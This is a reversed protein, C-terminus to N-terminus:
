GLCGQDDVRGDDWKKVSLGPDGTSKFLQIVSKLQLQSLELMM